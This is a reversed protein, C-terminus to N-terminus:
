GKDISYNVQQKNYCYVTISSIERSVHAFRFLLMNVLLALQSFIHVQDHWKEVSLCLVCECM